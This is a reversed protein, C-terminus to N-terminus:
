KISKGDQEVEDIGFCSIVNCFRFLYPNLFGDDFFLLNKMKLPGQVEIKYCLVHWMTDCIRNPM